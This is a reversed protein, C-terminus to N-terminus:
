KLILYNIAFVSRGKKILFSIYISASTTTAKKRDLGTPVKLSVAMFIINVEEDSSEYLYQQMDEGM